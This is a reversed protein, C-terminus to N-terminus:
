RSAPSEWSAGTLATSIPPVCHLVAGSTQHMGDGFFLKGSDIAAAGAIPLKLDPASLSWLERRNTATTIALAHVVGTNFSGLGSVYVTDKGTIPAAVFNEPANFAWLLRPQRVPEEGEARGLCLSLTMAAMLISEVSYRHAYSKLRIRFVVSKVSSV